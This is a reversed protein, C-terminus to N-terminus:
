AMVPIQTTPRPLGAKVLLLRLWTEKPSQSGADVCELVAELQRLGRAGRHMASIERVENVKLGTARMLADLHAIALGMPKRCGIDFATRRPSTVPLGAAVAESGIFPEDSPTM